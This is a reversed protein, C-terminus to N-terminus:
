DNEPTAPAVNDISSTVTTSPLPPDTSAVNVTVTVPLWEPIENSMAVASSVAVM